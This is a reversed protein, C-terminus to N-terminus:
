QGLEMFQWMEEQEENWRERHRAIIEEDMDDQKRDNCLLHAPAVNDWTHTGGKSLPIVHELTASMKDPWRLSPDIEHDCVVCIWNYFEFVDYKDILDGDKMHARRKPNIQKPLGDPLLTAVEGLDVLRCHYSCYTGYGFARPRTVSQECVICNYTISMAPCKSGCIRRKSKKATMFAMGCAECTRPYVSLMCKRSCYKRRKGQTPHIYFRRQCGVCVKCVKGDKKSPRLKDRPKVNM